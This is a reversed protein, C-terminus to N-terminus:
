QVQCMCSLSVKRGTTQHFTSLREIAALAETAQEPKLMAAQSNKALEGVQTDACKKAGGPGSYTPFSKMQRKGAAYWTVRYSDRGQCPRYVKAM